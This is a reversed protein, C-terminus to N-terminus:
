FLLPLDIFLFLNLDCNSNPTPALVDFDRTFSILQFNFRYISQFPNIIKEVYTLQRVTDTVASVAAPILQETNTKPEISFDEQYFL